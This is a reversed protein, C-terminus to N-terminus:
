VVAAVLPILALLAGIGFSALLDERESVFRAAAEDGAFRGERAERFSSVGTTLGILLGAAALIWAFNVVAHVWFGDFRHALACDGSCDEWIEGVPPMWGFPDVLATLSILGAVIMSVVLIVLLLGICSACGDTDDMHDEM